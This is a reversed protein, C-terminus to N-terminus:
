RRRFTKRGYGMIFYATVGAYRKAAQAHSQRMPSNHLKQCDLLVSLPTPLLAVTRHSVPNRVQVARTSTGEGRISGLYKIM